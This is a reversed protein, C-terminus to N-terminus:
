GAINAMGEERLKKGHGRGAMKAMSAEQWKTDDGIGAIKVMSAWTVGHGREAIKQWARKRGNQTM